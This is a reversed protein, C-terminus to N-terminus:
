THMRAHSDPPTRAATPTTQAHSRTAGRTCTGAGKHACRHTRTSDCASSARTGSHIARMWMRHRADFGGRDAVAACRVGVTAWFLSRSGCGSRDKANVEAGHTLLAAAVAAHGYIAAWDLPTDRRGIASTWVGCRSGGARTLPFTRARANACAHAHAHRHTQTGARARLRVHPTCTRICM